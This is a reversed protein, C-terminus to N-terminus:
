YHCVYNPRTIDYFHDQLHDFGFVLVTKIIRCPTSHQYTLTLSRAANSFDSLLAFFFKANLSWTDSQSTAVISTTRCNTYVPAMTRGCSMGSSIVRISEAPWFSPRSALLSAAQRPAIRQRVSALDSTTKKQAYKAPYHPLFNLFQYWLHAKILVQYAFINNANLLSTATTFLM